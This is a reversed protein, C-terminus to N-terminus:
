GLSPLPFSLCLGKLLAFYIDLRPIHVSAGGLREGCCSEYLSM